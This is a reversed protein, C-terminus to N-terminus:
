SGWVPKPYLIPKSAKDATPNVQVFKSGQWQFTFATATNNEGLKDFKVGGQVSTLTVGSHLYAIIKKNDFGKTAVVAQNIVQGVSYAEAVDASVTAATGGYKKIYAAVMAQSGPTTASGYWANPVMVGNANKLGVVSSFATGQDPGGTAIFAQPNYHAQEFAQMFASVTPVDVSGLVVVQAKAAAVADAIPTYDTTEAPFVSYYKTKVGAASIIAKAVPIQPETFADNTTVYAVSKPRKNAPLSAIWKAFPVLADKVPMSVDFLNTLGAQFVSPAGGAGEVMAYGYRDVARAAPLSLLSSFPGVTLNVHDLSILKQYNTVVQAPSSADSVIDLKVQHGLLGGNKNVTDAWLQYGQKFALGDASFDGSLSLSIGIVVPKGKAITSSSAGSSTAMMALSALAVSTVGAARLYRGKRNM